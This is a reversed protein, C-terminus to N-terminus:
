AIIPGDNEGSPFAPSATGTIYAGLLLTSAGHQRNAGSM